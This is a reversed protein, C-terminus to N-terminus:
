HSAILASPRLRDIARIDRMAAKISSQQRGPPSTAIEQWSWRALRDPRAAPRM